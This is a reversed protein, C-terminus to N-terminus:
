TLGVGWIHWNTSSDRWATAVGGVVLTRNGTPLSGGGGFWYLTGGSASITLNGSGGNRILVVGTAGVDTDLTLTNGGTGSYYVERGADSAATSTDGSFARSLLNRLAVPENNIYIDAATNITGSGKNGGTPAASGATVQIGSSYLTLPQYASSSWNYSQFYGAGGTLGMEVTHGSVSNAGGSSVKGGAWFVGNVALADGGSDPANISVNGSLGIVFREAGDTYFTHSGGYGGFGARYRLEGSTINMGVSGYSTSDGIVGFDYGRFTSNSASPLHFRANGEVSLPFGSSPAAISVNGGDAIQFPTAGRTADYITFDKGGNNNIDLGLVYAKDPRTYWTQVGLNGANSFYVPNAATANVNLTAGSSPANITVNGASGLTLVNNTGGNRRILLDGTNYDIYGTGASNWRIATNGPLYYAVSSGDGSASVAGTVTQSATFTNAANKLPINSSLSSDSIGASTVTVVDVGSIVFRFDGAGARYWGATSESGWTLGPASSSGTTARLPGTMGGDGNRALSGTLASAIDSLTNNAWTSSVTTGSVVPNGAPLSYDGSSNRPM